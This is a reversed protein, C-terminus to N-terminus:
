HLVDDYYFPKFISSWSRCSACLWWLSSCCVSYQNDIWLCAVWTDPLLYGQGGTGLAVFGDCGFLHDM